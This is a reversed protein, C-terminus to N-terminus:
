TTASPASLHRVVGGNTPVFHHKLATWKAEAVWVRRPQVKFETLKSPGDGAKARRAFIEKNSSARRPHYNLTMTVPAVLESSNLLKV